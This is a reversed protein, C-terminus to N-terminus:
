KRRRILGIGLLASGLLVLTSPEPIVTTSQTTAEYFVAATGNNLMPLQGNQGGTVTVTFTAFVDIPGVSTTAQSSLPGSVCAGNSDATCSFLLQAPNTLSANNTMTATAGYQVGPTGGAIQASASVLIRIATVNLSDGALNGATSSPACTFTTSTPTSADVFAGNSPTCQVLAGFMNTSGILLGTLLLLKSMNKM